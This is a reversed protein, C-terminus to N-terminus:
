VVRCRVELGHHLVYVPDPFSCDTSVENQLLPFNLRFSSRSSYYISGTQM